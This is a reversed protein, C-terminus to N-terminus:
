QSRSNEQEALPDQLIGARNRADLYFVVALVTGFVLAILEIADSAVFSLWSSHTVDSLVGCWVLRLFEQVVTFAVFATGLALGRGRLGRSMTMTWAERLARFPGIAYLAAGTYTCNTLPIIWAVVAALLAVIFIFLVSVSSSDITRGGAALILFWVFWPVLASIIVGVFAALYMASTLITAGIVPALRRFTLQYAKGLMPRGGTLFKESAISAAATALSLPLLTALIWIPVIWPNYPHPGRTLAAYEPLMRPDAVIKGLAGFARNYSDRNIWDLIARAPVDVLGVIAALPLLNAITVHVARDFIEGISLLRTGHASHM